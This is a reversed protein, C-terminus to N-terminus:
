ARGSRFWIHLLLVTNIVSYGIQLQPFYKRWRFSIFNLFINDGNSASPVIMEIQHRPFYKVSGTYVLSDQLSILDDDEEATNVASLCFVMFICLISQKGCTCSMRFGSPNKFQMMPEFTVGTERVLCIPQVVLVYIETKAFRGVTCLPPTLLPPDTM